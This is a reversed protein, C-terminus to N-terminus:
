LLVKESLLAPLSPPAMARDPPALVVLRTDVMTKLLPATLVASLRKLAPVTLAVSQTMPLLVPTVVKLPSVNVSAFMPTLGPRPAKALLPPGVFVIAMSLYSTKSPDNAHFFGFSNLLPTMPLQFQKLLYKLIIYFPLIFFNPM